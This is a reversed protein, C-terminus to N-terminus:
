ELLSKKGMWKNVLMQLEDTEVPYKSMVLDLELWRESCNALSCATAYIAQEEVAQESVQPPRSERIAKELKGEKPVDYKIELDALADERTNFHFWRRHMEIVDGHAHCQGFCSWRGTEINYSFSPSSEKHFPCCQKPYMLLDVGKNIHEEYYEPVTPLRGEVGTQIM